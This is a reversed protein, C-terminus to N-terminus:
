MVAMTIREKYAFLIKCRPNNRIIEWSLFVGVNRPSEGTRENRTRQKYRPLQRTLEKLTRLQTRSVRMSVNGRFRSVEGDGGSEM